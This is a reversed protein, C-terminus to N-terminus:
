VAFGVRGAKAWEEPSKGLSELADQLAGEVVEKAESDIVNLPM